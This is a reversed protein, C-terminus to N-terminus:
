SKRGSKHASAFHQWILWKHRRKTDFQDAAVTRKRALARVARGQLTASCVVRFRRVAGDVRRASYGFGRKCGHAAGLLAAHAALEVVSAHGLGLLLALRGDVRRGPQFHDRVAYQHRTSALAATGVGDVRRRSHRDRGVGDVTSVAVCARKERTTRVKMHSAMPLLSIGFMAVLQNTQATTRPKVWYGTM